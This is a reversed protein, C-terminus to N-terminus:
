CSCEMCDARVRAGTAVRVVSLEIAHSTAASDDHNRRPTTRMAVPARIRTLNPRVECLDQM